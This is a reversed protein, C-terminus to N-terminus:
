KEVAEIYFLAVLLAFLGVVTVGTNTIFEFM